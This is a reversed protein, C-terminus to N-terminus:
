IASRVRLKELVEEPSGRAIIRNEQQGIHHLYLPDYYLELLREVWSQHAEVLGTKVHNSLAETLESLLIKFTAGGLRRKIGTLSAELDRGLKAILYEDRMGDVLGYNELLYTRILRRARDSKPCELIIMPATMMRDFLASPVVNRGIMRSEDEILIPTSVTETGGRTQSFKQCLKERMRLFEMAIENEFDAQSSQKDSFSGFSSGRHHAARELDCVRFEKAAAQLLETKGSGTFGSLVVFSEAASAQEVVSLAFRRFRKYGGKIVPIRVGIEALAAASMKSRLGGRFCYMWASPNANTFDSWTNLREERVNRNILLHGLQIAADQGKLKYETGVAARQEDDFLPLNVAGPIKGAAFEIPARVDIFPTGSLLLKALEDDSGTGVIDISPEQFPEQQSVAQRGVLASM